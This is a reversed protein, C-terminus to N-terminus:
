VGYMYYYLLIVFNCFIVYLLVIISVRGWFGMLIVVFVLGVWVDYLEVSIKYFKDEIM